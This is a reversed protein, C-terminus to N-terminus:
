KDLMGVAKILFAYELATEECHKYRGGEGFHGGDMNAKLIIARACSSCTLDRVKAVWKTPGRKINEYPSCELITEFEKPIRPDGFEQYDLVTLPLSPDLLTNCVDLFPVKLIAACFLDPFMNIAAGLLLGGASFGIAGLKDKHVYGEGILYRACAVFDQVSNLKHLGAGSHHWSIGGGGGGRGHLMNWERDLLSLHDSCWSKDLVEGYAGYGHLLGPRKGCQASRKSYVITLPVCAGDLSSIEKRECVFEEYLTSWCQQEVQKFIGLLDKHLYHSFQFDCGADSNVGVVKEQDVIIFKQNLMDFDVILDPMVPSSLVARYIHMKFDHNSGPTISCINPPLPFFWPRFDDLYLPRKFDVELPMNISCIMPSGNKQIFLVLHRDFIDM